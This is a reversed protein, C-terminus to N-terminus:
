TRRFGAQVGGARIARVIELIDAVSTIDDAAGPSGPV